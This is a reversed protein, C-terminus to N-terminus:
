AAVAMEEGAAMLLAGITLLAAWASLADTNTRLQATKGPIMARLEAPSCPSLEREWWRALELTRALLMHSCDKGFGAAICQCTATATREDLVVKYRRGITRKSAVWYVRSWPTSLMPDYEARSLQILTPLAILKAKTATM